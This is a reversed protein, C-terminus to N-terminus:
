FNVQVQFGVRDDDTAEGFPATSTDTRWFTHTYQVVFEIEPVPSFEIGVDIEDVNDKPANRAFKRAGDFYNWRVYPMWTGSQTVTRWCAQVYGGQLSEATIRTGDDSLQPGRGWNWEAEIGFPQPYWVFSAAVREDTVGDTPQTPTVGGIAGTTVVYDGTYGQVGLEVIQKSPLEFPYAARAVWHVEGNLDAKNPGQGAYAGATLVGYDGSGKLGNKVLDRFRARVEKPAWMLYAGMDREGEVASNMADARELATRNQSSQLNVFGFPVKSLGVRFRFEKDQDLALDAYYDRMQLTYDTNAPTGAFEIQAYVYLRETVDGSLTVRGRRLYITEPENVSRDAPVNLNPTNDEDFLTTYRFQGYGRLSLKDYWKKEAAKDGAPAGVKREALQERLQAREKDGQELREELARLREEFTPSPAAPPPTPTPDQARLGAALLTLTSLSAFSATSPTKTM